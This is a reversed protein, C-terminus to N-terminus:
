TMRVGNRCHGTIGVLETSGPEFSLQADLYHRGDDCNFYFKSIGKKSSDEEVVAWGGEHCIFGKDLYIEDGAQLDKADVKPATM